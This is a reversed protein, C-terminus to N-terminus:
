LFGTRLLSSRVALFLYIFYIFKNFFFFGLPGCFLANLLHNKTM